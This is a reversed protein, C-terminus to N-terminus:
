TVIALALSALMGLFSLIKHRKQKKIEQERSEIIVDKDKVIQGQNSIVEKQLEVQILAKELERGVLRSREEMDEILSDQSSVLSDCVQQDAMIKAIVKAQATDFCIFLKGSQRLTRPTLDQSFISLAMM